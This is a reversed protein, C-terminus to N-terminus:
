KRCTKLIKRHFGEDGVEINSFSHACIELNLKM